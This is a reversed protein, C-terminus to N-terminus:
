ERNTVVRGVEEGIIQTGFTKSQRRILDLTRRASHRSATRPRGRSGDSTAFGLEIPHLEVEVVDHRVIEIVAVFSEWYCRDGVFDPGGLYARRNLYEDLTATPELGFRNLADPPIPGLHELEFFFNGLSYFIPAGNWWEIGAVRHPGHCMVATAGADVFERAAIRLFQPPLRFDRDAEHAHLSVLVVSYQLRAAQIAARIEVLDNRHPITVVRNEDAVAIALHPLQLTASGGPQRVAIGAFISAVTEMEDPPVTVLTAFRLASVGPRALIPGAANSAPAHQPFTSTASVLAVTAGNATVAAAARAEDLSRGGGSCRTGAEELVRRSEVLADAGFDCAHNNAISALRINLASLSAAVAPDTAMYLGGAEAMPPWELRHFLTEINCCVLDVSSLFDM